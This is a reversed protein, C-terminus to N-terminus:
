SSRLVMRQQDTGFRSSAQKRYESPTMGKIDLFRRNFNAINNFGVEYGIDSIYRDSEMLLYCAQNVRVRNVFDTFNNGTARKFFRSFRSESMGLDHAMEAASVHETLNDTLRVVIANIQDFDNTCQLQTTSLLRYDTCRSRTSLFDCFAAVRSM